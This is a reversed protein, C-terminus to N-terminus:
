TLVAKLYRGTVSEKVRAVAEPAGSAVVTGGNEGGGPGLDIIYDATKMCDLNHEIILVTNGADVLRGLISLLRKIDDMHLGTTPEDFIYLMDAGADDNMEKAIKLRQAEGGSLTLASQGLKLYGLGADKMVSFKKHLKKGYAPHVHFLDGAEEFTMELCDYINNGRYKVGLVHQKYRRGSCGACKIYVDPLFYMELREVGEGKCTECRGGPTNFSFSGATLSLARASPLAAYIHRIDDFGNIYTIPNSRPTRGVPAQDVLRVGRIGETGEISSYARPTESAERRVGRPSAPLRPGRGGFEKALINYLTDRILTSKGSGSVGTVCTITKLPIRISVDKLNNGSAGKLTLFKGSGNRRWRPTHMLARGTLYDATITRSEKLFDATDGSYVLRGGKEGSGPGLEIIYDSALIMSPEHEVIVVTNGRGSLKKMQRTLMDIDAPHLGISPEDLIYLVGTLSAALQTA